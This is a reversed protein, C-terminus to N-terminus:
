PQADAPEEFVVHVCAAHEKKTGVESQGLLSTYIRPFPEVLGQAVKQTMAHGPGRHIGDGWVMREGMGMAWWTTRSM